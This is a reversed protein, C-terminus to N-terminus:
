SRTRPGLRAAVQGRTAAYTLLFHELAHQAHRPLFPAVPVTTRQMVHRGDLAWSTLDDDLNLRAIELAAEARSRVGRVVWAWIRAFPEDETFSVHMRHGVHDFVLHGLEDVVCPRGTVQEIIAEYRERADVHDEVEVAVDIPNPYDAPDRGVPVSDSRILRLAGTYRGVTGESRLTLLQPHPVGLRDRCADVVARAIPAPATPATHAIMEEVLDHGAPRATVWAVAGGAALQVTCRGQGGSPQSPARFQMAGVAGPRRLHGTLTHEFDHWPDGAPRLSASGPGLRHDQM